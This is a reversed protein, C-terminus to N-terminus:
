HSEKKMKKIENLIKTMRANGVMVLVLLLVFEVSVMFIIYIDWLDMVRDMM